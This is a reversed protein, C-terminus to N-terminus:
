AAIGEVIEEVLQRLGGRIMAPPFHGLSNEVVVILTEDGDYEFRARGAVSVVEGCYPTKFTVEAGYGRLQEAIVNLAQFPVKRLIITMDLRALRLDDQAVPRTVQCVVLSGVLRHWIHDVRPRCLDGRGLVHVM